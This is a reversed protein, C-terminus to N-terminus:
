LSSHSKSRLIEEYFNEILDNSIPSNSGVESWTQQWPTGPKHTAASLVIANFKGYAKAVYDMVATENSDFDFSRAGQVKAVPSSGYHKVAHYVSAVVPGYKWAQVSEDLLPSGHKGLMYGHAIYVLKILQMPTTSATGADKCRDLIYQAAALSKAINMATEGLAIRDCSWV